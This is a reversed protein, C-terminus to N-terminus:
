VPQASAEPSTARVYRELSRLEPMPFALEDATRLMARYLEASERQSGPTVAHATFRQMSKNRAYMLRMLRTTVWTPWRIYAVDPYAKLDVGRRACLALLERTAKFCTTLLAGDRLTAKLDGHKPLGAAFAVSTAAHVWLWHVIDAQVDLAIDASAFLTRIKDLGAEPQGDLRGIHFEAGLNTWYLEGHMTGGADPYALLYRERPLRRDIAETGEWNAAMVVILAEGRTRALSELASDLQFLNVPVLVVEYADAPAVADVFRAQYTTITSAYGKREDLVDLELADTGTPTGQRVVHTVDAGAEALAWGYTTGIIGRGVILIKM